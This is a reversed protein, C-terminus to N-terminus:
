SRPRFAVLPLQAALRRRDAENGRYPWGLLRSLVLRVVPAVLRSRREYEAVVRGAEDAALIRHSAAFRRRGIVVEVAEPHAEINRLWDADRGFGSVVVAEPGKERYDVIELVTERRLGSRRGRHILLLFRRGLLEGWGRRYLLVPIRLLRRWLPSLHASM